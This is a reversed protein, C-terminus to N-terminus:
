DGNIISNYNNIGMGIEDVLIEEFKRSIYEAEMNRYRNLLQLLSEKNYFKDDLGNLLLNEDRGWRLPIVGFYMCEYYSTTNYTIAFDYKGSEFLNTITEKNDIISIHNCQKMIPHQLICSMPHPKLTFEVDIEEAVDNIIPLMIAFAEDYAKGGGLILCNKMNTKVNINHFSYKPNGAILVNDQPINSHSIFFEKQSKGWSLVYNSIVNEWNIIDIPITQSFDGIYGHIIQFTQVSRREFYLTLLAETYAPSLFPIYKNQSFDKDLIRKDLQDVVQSYNTLSAAIFCRQLFSTKIHKSVLILFKIFRFVNFTWHNVYSLTILASDDISSQIACALNYHDKRKPFNFSCINKHTLFAELLQSVDVRRFLTALVHKAKKPTNIVIIDLLEVSAAKILDIGKYECSFSQKLQRYELFRDINNM